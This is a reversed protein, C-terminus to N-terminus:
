KLLKYIKEPEQDAVLRCTIKASALLPLVTKTGKGQYGGWIGNLEFKPSVSLSEPITYQMEEFAETAGVSKRYDDEDFPVKAIENRGQLTFNIMDDYFGDIKIKGARNEIASIILSLAYIPNAVGGVHMASHLDRVAGTVHIECGILGKLGLIMSAQDLGWQGGGSSFIVDAALM